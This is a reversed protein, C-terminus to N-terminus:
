NHLIFLERQRNLDDLLLVSFIANVLSSELISWRSKVNKGFKTFLISLM